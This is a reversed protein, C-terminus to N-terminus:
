PRLLHRVEVLRHGEIYDFSKCSMPLPESILTFCSDGDEPMSLREGIAIGKSGKLRYEKGEAVIRTDPSIRIWYGPYNFGRVTLLTATDTREVREIVISTTNATGVLPFEVMRKAQNCACLLVTMMLVTILISKKRM